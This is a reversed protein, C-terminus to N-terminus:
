NFVVGHLRIFTSFYLVLKSSFRDSLVISPAVTRTVLHMHCIMKVNQSGYGFCGNVVFSHSASFRGRCTPLFIIVTGAVFGVRQRILVSETVAPGM